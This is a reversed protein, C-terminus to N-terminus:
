PAFFAFTHGILLRKVRKLLANSVVCERRGIKMINMYISPEVLGWKPSPDSLVIMFVVVVPPIVETTSCSFTTTGSKDTLSRRDAM